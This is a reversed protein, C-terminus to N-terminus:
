ETGRLDPLALLGGETQLARGLRAAIEGPKLDISSLGAISLPIEELMYEGRGDEAFEPGTRDDFSWREVRALYFYQREAESELIHLLSIVEAKGAIEEWLERALAAERDGDTPEVGGGPLVWYPDVGPRTRKIALMTDAPTILIARVREKM